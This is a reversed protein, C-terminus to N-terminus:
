PSKKVLNIFLETGARPAISNYCGAMTRIDFCPNFLTRYETESGGFPPGQRNFLRNFLLGTIKGKHRLLRHCQAVYDPRKQPPLTCFFAQEILLDYQGSHQFFDECLIKVTSHGEFKKRLLATAKPAIDILTVNTFGQEVLFGAEYANGCGPILIAADKDPYQLLYRAIPPAAYGIDWGTARNQWREEWFQQGFDPTDDQNQSLTNM